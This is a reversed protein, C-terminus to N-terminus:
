SSKFEEFKSLPMEYKYPQSPQDLSDIVAQTVAKNPYMFFGIKRVLTGTMGPVPQKKELTKSIEDFANKETLDRVAEESFLEKNIRTVKETVEHWEGIRETYSAGGFHLIGADDIRFERVNEPKGIGHMIKELITNYIDVSRFNDEMSATYLDVTHAYEASGSFDIKEKSVCACNCYKISEKLTNLISRDEWQKESDNM